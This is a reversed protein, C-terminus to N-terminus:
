QEARRSKLYEAYDRIQPLAEQPLQGVLRIIEEKIGDDEVAIPNKTEVMESLPVGLGHALQQMTYETPSRKGAEIMSIAQQTVGSKEALEEQSIKKEKRLLAMNQAFISM